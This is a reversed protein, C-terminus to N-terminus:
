GFGVLELVDRKKKLCLQDSIYVPECVAFVITDRNIKSCVFCDYECAIFVSSNCSSLAHIRGNMELSDVIQIRKEEGVSEIEIVLVKGNESTVICRTGEILCISTITEISCSYFSM